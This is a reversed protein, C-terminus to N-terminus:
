TSCEVDFCQGAMVNRWISFWSYNKIMLTQPFKRTWCVDSVFTFDATIECTTYMCLSMSWLGYLTCLHHKLNQMYIHVILFPNEPTQQWLYTKLAVSTPLECRFSHTRYVSCKNHSFSCSMPNCLKIPATLLNMKSKQLNTVSHWGHFGSFWHALHKVGTVVCKLEWQREFM